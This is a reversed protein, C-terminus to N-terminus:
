ITWGNAYGYLLVIACSVLAAIYQGHGAGDFACVSLVLCLLAANFVTKNIFRKLTKKM